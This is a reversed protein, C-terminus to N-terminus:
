GHRVLEAVNRAHSVKEAVGPDGGTVLVDRQLTVRQGGGATVPHEDIGGGTGQIRTGCQRLHQILESRLVGQHDPPQVPQAKRASRSVRPIPNRDSVSDISVVEGPPRSTNWRNAANAWNSRSSILSRVLAPRAAARARPRRPPRGGRSVPSWTLVARRNYSWFSM